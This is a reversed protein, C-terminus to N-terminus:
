RDGEREYEWDAQEYYEELRREREDQEVRYEAENVESEPPELGWDNM